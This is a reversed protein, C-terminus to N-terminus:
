VGAGDERGPKQVSVPRGFMGLLASAVEDPDGRFETVELDALWEEDPYVRWLELEYGEEPSPVCRLKYVPVAAVQKRASAALEDVRENMPNGDHGRVWRWDIQQGSYARIHLEQWLDVNKVRKGDKTVWHRRRWGKVWQTIGKILYQSDSYIIVHEGDNTAKLAELAATLEMRNNTTQEAAGSLIQDKGNRRVIAAWGGPGPNPHVSGDTWVRVVDRSLRKVPQVVGMEDMEIWGPGSTRMPM